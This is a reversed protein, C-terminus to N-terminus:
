KNKETLYIEMVAKSCEYNLIRAEYDKVSARMYDEVSQIFALYEQEDYPHVSNFELSFDGCKFEMDDIYPLYAFKIGEALGAQILVNGLGVLTKRMEVYNPSQKESLNEMVKNRKQNNGNSGTDAAKRKPSHM